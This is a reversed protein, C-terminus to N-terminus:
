AKILQPFAAGAPMAPFVAKLEAAGLGMHEQLVAGIATRFDTTVALDRGQYLRDQSLGPWEGYVKGGRVKGGMVWMVNGHGHDTGGNGNEHVTRGFESIVVVVTDQWRDGLGEALAALGEGLPKLRNALQGNANGQGVHTDWGGVALFALQIGSDRAMLQALKGTQMAFGNPLPAGNNAKRQEEDMATEDASAAMVEKRAEQGQQFAQSMADNGGYMSAFAAGVQPRDVAAPRVGAKGFPMNAVSVKGKLIDPMTPGIAIAQTPAHSGPMTALLRNMWGDPTALVDPTGSEMFHQADFHSRSGSPSGCAQVFALQGRQWLPMMSALAPHLGFRGDLNLAGGNGPQPIAISRRAQYYAPDGYPVVVNLGDVAGRLFVVVLRKESGSRLNLAAWADSGLPIILPGAALASLKLFDRRRM